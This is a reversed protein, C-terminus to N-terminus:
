IVGESDQNNSTADNRCHVFSNTRICHACDSKTLGSRPLALMFVRIVSSSPISTGKIKGPILQIEVGLNTAATEFAPPKPINALPGNVGSSVRAEIRSIRSSVSLGKPTPTVKNIGPAFSFASIANSSCTGTILKENPLPSQNTFLACSYPPLTIAVTTESFCASEACAM